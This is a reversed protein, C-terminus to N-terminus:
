QSISSMPRSCLPRQCPIQTPLCISKMGLGAWAIAAPNHVQPVPVVGVVDVVGVVAAAAAADVVAIGAEAAPRWEGRGADAFAVESSEDGDLPSRQPRMPRQVKPM